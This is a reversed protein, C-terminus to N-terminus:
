RVKWTIHCNALSSNDLSQHVKITKAIIELVRWVDLVELNIQNEAKHCSYTLVTKGPLDTSLIHAPKPQVLTLKRWPLQCM